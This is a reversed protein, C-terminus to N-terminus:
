STLSSLHSAVAWAGYFGHSVALLGAHAMPHPYSSLGSRRGAERRFNDLQSESLADKLIPARTYVPRHMVKFTFSTGWMAMKMQPGRFFYNFGM